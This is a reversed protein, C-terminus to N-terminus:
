FNFFLTFSFIQLAVLTNKFIQVLLVDNDKHILLYNLTTIINHILSQPLAPLVTQCLKEMIWASPKM